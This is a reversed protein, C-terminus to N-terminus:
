DKQSCGQHYQSDENATYSWPLTKRLIEEEKEVSWLGGLSFMRRHIRFSYRLM